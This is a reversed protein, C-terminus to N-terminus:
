SGESCMMCMTPGSREGASLFAEEVKVGLRLFEFWSIFLVLNKKFFVM